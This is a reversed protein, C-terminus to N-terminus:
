LSDDTKEFMTKARLCGLQKRRCIQGLYFKKHARGL